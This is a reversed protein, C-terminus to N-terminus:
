MTKAYGCNRIIHNHLQSHVRLNADTWEAFIEAAKRPYFSCQLLPM